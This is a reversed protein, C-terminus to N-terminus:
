HRNSVGMFNLFADAAQTLAQDGSGGEKALHLWREASERDGSHYSAEGLRYTTWGDTRGLQRAKALSDVADSWRKERRAIEGLLYYAYPSEDLTLLREIAQRASTHQYHSFRRHAEKELSALAEPNIRKRSM